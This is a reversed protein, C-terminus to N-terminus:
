LAPPPGAAPRRRIPDTAGTVQEGRNYHRSDPVPFDGMTSRHFTSGKGDNSALGEKHLNKVEARVHKEWAQGFFLGYVEKIRGGLVFDGHTILLQRINQEIGEIWWRRNDREYADRDFPV